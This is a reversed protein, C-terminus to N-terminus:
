TSLSSFLLLIYITRVYQDLASPLKTIVEVQCTMTDPDSPNAYAQPCQSKFLQPDSNCGIVGGNSTVALNSPCMSNIDVPCSSSQCGGPTVTVPLNFGDILSVDYSDQSGGNGNLAIEVLSTPPAGSRGNCSIQGTGCDGVPCGFQGSGDTGCFTRAWIRGAWGAPAGISSTVGQGLAFGTTSLQPIGSNGLTAPWITYPCNNHINFTTSEIGSIFSVLILATVFILSSEM